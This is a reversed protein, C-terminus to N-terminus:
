PYLERVFPPGASTESVSTESAGLAFGPGHCSLRHPPFAYLCPGSLGVQVAEVALNEPLSNLGSLCKEDIEHPM